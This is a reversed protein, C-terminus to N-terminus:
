PPGPTEPSAPADTSAPAGPSGVAGSSAPSRGRGSGAPSALGAPLVTLTGTCLVRNGDDIVRLLMTGSEFLQKGPIVDAYVTWPPSTVKIAKDVATKGDIVAQVHVSGSPVKRNFHAVYAVDQGRPWRTTSGVIDFTARDYSSGFLVKGADPGPVSKGGGSTCAMVFLALACISLGRRVM